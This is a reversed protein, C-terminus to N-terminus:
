LVEKEDKSNLANRWFRTTLLARKLDLLTLFPESYDDHTKACPVVKQEFTDCPLTRFPLHSHELKTYYPLHGLVQEPEIELVSTEEEPITCIAGM